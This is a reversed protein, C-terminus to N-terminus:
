FALWRRRRKIRAVASALVLIAAPVFSSILRAPTLWVFSWGTRGDVYRRLYESEPMWHYKGPDNNDVVCVRDGVHVASIMHHIPMYNYLQGTNMTAGVPLGQVNYKKLEDLTTGEFSVWKADPYTAKLLKELKEPYYGGPQSKAARWLKSDKLKGLDEVGQYAGNIVLSSIVCLGAGDSGGENRIHFEPPIPANARTGRYEPVTTVEEGRRDPGQAYSSHSLLALIVVSRIMHNKGPMAGRDPYDANRLRRFPGGAHLGTTEPTGDPSPM